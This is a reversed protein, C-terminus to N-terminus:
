LEVPIEILDDKRFGLIIKQKECDKAPNVPLYGLINHLIYLFYFYKSSYNDFTYYLTVIKICTLCIFAALCAFLHVNKDLIYVVSFQMSCNEREM